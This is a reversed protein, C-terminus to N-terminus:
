QWKEQLRQWNMQLWQLAIISAANQIYNEQLNKWLEERSFVHVWIDEGEDQNGHAGGMERTDVAGCYLFLKENSGGPSPYYECIYELDLLETGTEENVERHATAEKRDGAEIIGAVLEIQWPGEPADLAGIRFQEVMAVTDQYPDYLLVAVAPPRDFCERKLERTWGGEIKRHKLRYEHVKFFGNHVTQTKIIQVDDRTFSPGDSSPM